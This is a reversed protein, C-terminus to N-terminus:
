LPSSRQLQGASPDCDAPDPVERPPPAPQPDALSFRMPVSAWEKDFDRYRELGALCFKTLGSQKVDHLLHLVLPYPTAPDPDIRLQPEIPLGHFSEFTDRVRERPVAAGNLAVRGKTDLELVYVPSRTASMPESDNAFPLDIMVAHTPNTYLAMFLVPLLLLVGAIPAYNPRAIPRGHDFRRRARTRSIEIGSM